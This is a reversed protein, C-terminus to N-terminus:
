CPMPDHAYVLEFWPSKSCSNADLWRVQLAGCTEREKRKAKIAGLTALFRKTFLYLWAPLSGPLTQCRLLCLFCFLVSSSVPWYARSSKRPARQMSSKAAVVFNWKETLASEEGSVDLRFRVEVEDVGIVDWLSCVIFLCWARIFIRCYWM